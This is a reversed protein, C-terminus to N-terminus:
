FKPVLTVRLRHVAPGYTISLLVDVARNARATVVTNRDAPTWASEPLSLISLVPIEIAYGDIVARRLLVGLIGDIRSRIDLLGSRTIRADGITGILGAKVRFEIDDLTRVIDVYLLTADTTFTRGEAFHLSEGVILAPDIIPNINAESLGKIESPSYQAALPMSVGRVKKLVISIHPEYGAIAAMAATAADTTAGRAAVLVMRSVDSKLTAVATKVTDVYNTSKATTPDIMAVGIRKQGDASMSEVHDKLAMLNTAASTGSAAAGVDTVSALSVFTVDDAAELAALGAAFNSDTIKVGYIKSPRPDQLLAVKLSSYLTTPVVVGDSGTSAFLGAAEDLDSVEYPRNADASGAGGTSGVVAIVGPAREAVPALASTDIRVDIFPYAVTPM